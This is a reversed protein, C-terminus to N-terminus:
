RFEDDNIRVTHLFSCYIHLTGSLFALLRLESLQGYNVSQIRLEQKAPRLCPAGNACDPPM